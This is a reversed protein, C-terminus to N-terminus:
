KKHGNDKRRNVREFPFQIVVSPVPPPTELSAKWVQPEGDWSSDIFEGDIFLDGQVAERFKDNRLYDILLSAEAETETTNEDEILVFGYDMFDDWEDYESGVDLSLVQSLDRMIVPQECAEANLCEVLVLVKGKSLPAILEEFSAIRHRLYNLSREFM